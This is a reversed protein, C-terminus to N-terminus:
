YNDLVEFPKPVPSLASFKLEQVCPVKKLCYVSAIALLCSYALPGPWIACHNSRRQWPQPKGSPWPVHLFWGIYACMFQFLLDSERGSGRREFWYILFKLCYFFLFKFFFFNLTLPYFHKLVSHSGSPLTMPGRLVGQVWFLLIKSGTRNKLESQTNRLTSLSTKKWILM